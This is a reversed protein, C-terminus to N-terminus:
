RQADLHQFLYAFAPKTYAVGRGSAHLSEATIAVPRKPVMYGDLDRDTVTYKGGRSKVVGVLRYAPDISAMAADGHSSNVLLHGGRRLYKTCHESIFGAYLSVLLDSHDAPLPLDSTYDAHIFRWAPALGTTRYERILEDVGDRDGFFQDARRDVDVYTVDDFVFSTAVDVYSGPYVVTSASIASGVASFLRQRDGTHQDQKTWLKRTREKM